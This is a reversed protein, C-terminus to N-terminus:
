QKQKTPEPTESHGHNNYYDPSLWTTSGHNCKPNNEYCEYIQPLYTKACQDVLICSNELNDKDVLGFIHSIIITKVVTKHISHVM